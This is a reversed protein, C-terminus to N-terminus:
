NARGSPKRDDTVNSSHRAVEERHFCLKKRATALGVPSLRVSRRIVDSVSPRHNVDVGVAPQM